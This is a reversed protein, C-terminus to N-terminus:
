RTSSTITCAVVYQTLKSINYVLKIYMYVNYLWITPLASLILKKPKRLFNTTQM